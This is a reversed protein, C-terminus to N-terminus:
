PVIKYLRLVGNGAEAWPGDAEVDKAVNRHRGAALLEILCESTM